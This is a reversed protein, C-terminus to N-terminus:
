IAFYILVVILVIDVIAALDYFHKLCIWSVWVLPIRGWSLFVMAEKYHLPDYKIFISDKYKRHIM